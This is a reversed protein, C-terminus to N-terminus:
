IGHERDKLGATTVSYRLFPSHDIAWFRQCVIHPLKIVTDSRRPGECSGHILLYHLTSLATYSMDNEDLLGGGGEAGLAQDLQLEEVGRARWVAEVRGTLVTRAELWCNRKGDLGEGRNM